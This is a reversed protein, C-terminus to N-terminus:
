EIIIEEIIFADEGTEILLRDGTEPDYFGILLTYAGPPVDTLNLIHVDRYLTNTQWTSTSIRADQPFADSQSWLPTGTAPNLAGILHVFVKLDANSQKEPKWYLWIYATESQPSMVIKVDQLAVMENDAVQWSMYQQIPIGAIETNHTRQMNNALWNEVVGSNQWATFTRGIVWLSEYQESLDALAAEIEDAPQDFNDPLATEDNSIDYYNHYYYGFSADVSTQIVLDDLAIQQQLYATFTNWGPAKPQSVHYYNNLSYVSIGVWGSMFILIIGTKLWRAKFRNAFIVTGITFILLYAPTALLVYRPRFISMRLSVFCLMILPAIALTALFIAQNTSKRGVIFIGAILILTTFIGIVPLMDDPLTDGFNLVPLFRTVLEILNLSDTTGTYGGGGILAGQFLLFTLGVIGTLLATLFTWHRFFLRDDDRYWVAVFVWLAGIAFLEMYFILAAILATVAYLIIDIRSRQQIARLGLWLGAASLGSWIAYNRFDQAHWIQFPHITWLLAALIGTTHNHLRTGLAYMAPIGILNILVPLLRLMFESDIGFIVGWLRFLAYNLPPHPELTAIDALSQQLPLGAWYNASFAEDGRLSVTDLQYLRLGFGILILAAVIILAQTKKM